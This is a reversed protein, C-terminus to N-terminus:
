SNLEQLVSSPSYPVTSHSSILRQLVHLSRFYIECWCRYSIMIICKIITCNSGTWFSTTLSWSAKLSTLFDLLLQLNNNNTTIIVIATQFLGAGLKMPAIWIVFLISFSFYFDNWRWIWTVSIDIVLISHKVLRHM